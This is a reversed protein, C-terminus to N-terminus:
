LVFLVSVRPYKDPYPHTEAEICPSVRNRKEWQKPGEQAEEMLIAVLENEDSSKVCNFEM